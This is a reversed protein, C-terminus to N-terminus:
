KCYKSVTHWRCNYVIRAKEQLVFSHWAVTLEHSEGSQAGGMGDTRVNLTKDIEGGTGMCRHVPKKRSWATRVQRDEACYRCPRGTTVPLSRPM